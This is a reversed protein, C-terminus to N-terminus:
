RNRIEVHLGRDGSSILRPDVRISVIVQCCVSANAPPRDKKVSTASIVRMSAIPARAKLTDVPFDWGDAGHLRLLAGFSELMM